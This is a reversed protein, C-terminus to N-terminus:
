KHIIVYGVVYDTSLTIEAMQNDLCCNCIVYNNVGTNDTLTQFGVGMMSHYSDGDTNYFVRRVHVPNATYNIVNYYDSFSTSTYASYSSFSKDSLYNTYGSAINNVLTGNESTTYFYNDGLNKIFSNVLPLNDSHSDPLAGAILNSASLCAKDIYSLYMAASSPVCGSHFGNSDLYQTNMYNPVDTIKATSM